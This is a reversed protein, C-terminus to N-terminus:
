SSANADYTAEGTLNLVGNPHGLLAAYIPVPIKYPYQISVTILCQQNTSGTGFVTTPQASITLDQSPNFHPLKNAAFNDAVAQTIKAETSSPISCANGNMTVGYYAGLRAGEGATAYIIQKAGVEVGFGIVGFLILILIPLVLAAEIIAQGRQLRRKLRKLRKFM